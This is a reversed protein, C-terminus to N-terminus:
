CLMHRFLEGLEDFISHTLTAGGVKQPVYNEHAYYYSTPYLISIHYKIITCIYIYIHQEIITSNHTRRYLNFYITCFWKTSSKNVSSLSAREAACTSPPHFQGNSIYMSLM